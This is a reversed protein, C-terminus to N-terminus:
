ALVEVQLGIGGIRRHLAEALLDAVADGEGGLRQALPELFSPEQAADVLPALGQANTSGQLALAAVDEMEGGGRHLLDAVVAALPRIRDSDAAVQPEVRRIDPPPQVRPLGSGHAAVLHESSTPWM